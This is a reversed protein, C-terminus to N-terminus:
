HFSSRCPQQVHNEWGRRPSTLLFRRNSLGRSPWGKASCCDNVVVCPGGRLQAASCGDWTHHARRSAQTAVVCYGWDRSQTNRADPNKRERQLVQLVFISYQLIIRPGGNHGSRQLGKMYTGTVNAWTKPCRCSKRKQKKMPLILTNNRSNHAHGQCWQAFRHRLAAEFLISLVNACPLASHLRLGSHITLLLSRVYRTNGGREVTGRRVGAARLPCRMLMLM